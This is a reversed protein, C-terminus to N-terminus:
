CNFRRHAPPHFDTMMRSASPSTGTQNEVFIRALLEAEGQDCRYSMVEALTRGLEPSSTWEQIEWMEQVFKNEIRFRHFPHGPMRRVEHALHRMSQLGATVPGSTLYDDFLRHTVEISRAVAAEHDDPDPISYRIQHLYKGTAPIFVHSEETAQGRIEDIVVSTILVPSADANQLIVQEYILMQACMAKSIELCLSSAFREM